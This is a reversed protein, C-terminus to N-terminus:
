KGQASLEDAYKILENLLGRITNVVSINVNKNLQEILEVTMEILVQVTNSDTLYDSIDFCGNCPNENIFKMFHLLKELSPHRSLIKNKEGIELFKCYLLDFTGWSMKVFEDKIFIEASM